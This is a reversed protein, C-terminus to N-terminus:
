LAPYRIAFATVEVFYANALQNLLTSQLTSGSGNIALASANINKSSIVEGGSHPEREGDRAGGNLM